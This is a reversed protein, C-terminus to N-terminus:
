RKPLLLVGAILKYHYGTEPFHDGLSVTLLIESTTTMGPSDEEYIVQTDKTQQLLASEWEIDTIPLSYHINRKGFNFAGEIRPKNRINTTRVWSLDKPRVLLLSHSIAEKEIAAHPVKNNDTGFLFSFSESPEVLKRLTELHARDDSAHSIVKTASPSALTWNEPQGPSKISDGLTLRMIDFPKMVRSKKTREDPIYVDLFELAGHTTAKVPRIWAGSDIDIGAICYGGERRSVALCLFRIERM